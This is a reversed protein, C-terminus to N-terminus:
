KKVAAALILERVVDPKARGKTAKMVQGMLFNASNVKGAKIKEVVDLNDNLIEEVIADLESADGIQGGGMEKIIDTVDKTSDFCKLQLEKAQSASITKAAIADCMDAVHQFSIHPAEFDFGKEKVVANLEGTVWLAVRKPTATKVLVVVERFFADMSVDGMLVKCEHASLAYENQYVQLKQEPLLPLQEKYAVLESDRICLPPLDPEPFYRYDHAEEKGRLSTTKQTAEDFNRTEQIIKEGALLLKTQRKIEYEIAREISRFSNVNKIEARTGFTESGVPRLSINIDARLSGEELNGDCAGIHQVITKLTEVYARAEKASRIDPESVIEILPTGARNLDVLSHTAGEISDAGQHLLKGADEEIHIRTIGIRKQDGEVTINVHGNECIPKDFQSIQYGKPLDPYFYNKRSFVSLQRIDCNLALGAFVALRVVEKNLVPLAGPLGLNVPSVNANPEDGFVTSSPCFLKSKTKLQCHVEIGMVPEFQHTSM